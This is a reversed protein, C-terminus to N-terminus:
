QIQCSLNAGSNSEEVCDPAVLLAYDDGFLRFNNRKFVASGTSSLYVGESEPQSSVFESDEVQLWASTDADGRGVMVGISRPYDFTSNAIKVASDSAKLSIQLGSEKGALSSDIITVRTNKSEESSTIHLNSTQLKVGKIDLKANDALELVCGTSLEGSSADITEASRIKVNGFGDQLTQKCLEVIGGDVMRSAGEEAVKDTILVTACALTTVSGVVLCGAFVPHLNAFLITILKKM